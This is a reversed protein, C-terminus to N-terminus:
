TGDPDVTHSETDTQVSDPVNGATNDAANDSGIDPTSGAMNGSTNDSDTNDSDKSLMYGPTNGPENDTMNDTTSDPTYLVNDKMSDTVRKLKSDAFSMVKGSTDSGTGAYAAAPAPSAASAAPAAPTTQAAPAAPAMGIGTRFLEVYWMFSAYMKGRPSPQSLRVQWGSSTYRSISKALTNKTARVQLYIYQRTDPEGSSLRNIEKPKHVCYAWAITTILAVIGALVIIILAIACLSLTLVVFDSAWEELVGEIIEGFSM